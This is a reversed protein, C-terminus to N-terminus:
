GAKRVKEFTHVVKQNGGILKAVIAVDGDLQALRDKAEKVAESESDYVATFLNKPVDLTKTVLIRYKM